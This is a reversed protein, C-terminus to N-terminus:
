SLLTVAKRIRIIADELVDKSVAYSLRLHPSRGFASGPVLAVGVSDLLFAAVDTDTTLRDGEVPKSHGENEVNISGISLKSLPQSTM